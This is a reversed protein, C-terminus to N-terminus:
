RVAGSDLAFGVVRPEVGEPCEVLYILRAERGAVGGSVLECPVAYLPELLVEPASRAESFDEAALLALLVVGFVVVFGFAPSRFVTM